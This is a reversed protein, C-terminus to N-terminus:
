LFDLMLKITITLINIGQDVEGIKYKLENTLTFPVKVKTM